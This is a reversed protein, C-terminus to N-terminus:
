RMLQKFSISTTTVTDISGDAVQMALEMCDFHTNQVKIGNQQLYSQVYEASWPRADPQSGDLSVINKTLTDGSGAMKEEVAPISLFFSCNYGAFSNLSTDDFFDRNLKQM